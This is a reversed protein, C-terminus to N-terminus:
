QRAQYAAFQALTFRVTWYAAVLGPLGFAVARSWNAAGIAVYTAVLLMTTFFTALVSLGLGEFLERRAANM